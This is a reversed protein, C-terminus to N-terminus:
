VDDRLTEDIASGFQRLIDPVDNVQPTLINVMDQREEVAIALVDALACLFEGAKDGALCDEILTLVHQM